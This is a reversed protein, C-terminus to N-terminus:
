NLKREVFEMVLEVSCGCVKFMYLIQGVLFAAVLDPKVGQEIVDKIAGM